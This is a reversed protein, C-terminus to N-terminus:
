VRIDIRSGTTSKDKEKILQKDENQGKEDKKHDNEEKTQQQKERQKEDIKAQASKESSNVKKMDHDVQHHLATNAQQQNAHLKEEAEQHTRSLETTRPVMSKLDIPRIGMM